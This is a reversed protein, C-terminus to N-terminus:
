GSGWVFLGALRPPQDAAGVPCPHENIAVGLTFVAELRAQGLFGALDGPFRHLGDQLESSLLM